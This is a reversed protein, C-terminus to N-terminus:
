TFISFYERLLATKLAYFLFPEQTPIQKLKGVGENPKLKNVAM